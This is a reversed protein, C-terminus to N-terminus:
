MHVSAKPACVAELERHELPWIAGAAVGKRRLASEALSGYVASVRGPSSVSMDLEYKM